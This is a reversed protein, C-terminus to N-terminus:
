NKSAQGDNLTVGMQDGRQFMNAWFARSFVGKLGSPHWEKGPNNEKFDNSMVLWDLEFQMFRDSLRSSAVDHAMALEANKEEYTKRIKDVEERQWPSLMHTAYFKTLKESLEINATRM